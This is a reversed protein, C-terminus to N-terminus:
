PGTEVSEVFALLRDTVASGAEVHALHRGAVPVYEGRPVEEALAAGAAPPVVPDDVGHGVLAPVDVEYLPGAEFGLLAALQAERAEPGADEARRWEVVHDVFEAQETRFEPTFAGDLSARIAEPDPDGDEPYLGRLAGEDVDQGDAATGFLALSRARGYERAYRLGVMGGLGAGVVHVAEVGADALVAELDAALDRVDYPGAPADSRGTGRLDWAIARRPGAVESHQVSWQWAGFGAEGVFVVPQHSEAGDGDGSGGVEYYLGVGQNSARPM